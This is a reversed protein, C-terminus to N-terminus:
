TMAELVQLMLDGSSAIAREVIGRFLLLSSSVALMGVAIKVPFGVVLVHIQPATKVIVGMTASVMLLVLTVPAAIQLGLSFVDGYARLLVLSGGSLDPAAFPPVVTMSMVLVRILVLHADLGFLLLVTLLYYLQGYISIQSNTQPDYANVIAFGVQMGILSGAFRVCAIVLNIAFALSAGIVLSHLGELVLSPWGLVEPAAPMLAVTGPALAWALPLAAALRWMLPVSRRDMLPALAFLTALRLTLVVTVLLLRSDVSVQM